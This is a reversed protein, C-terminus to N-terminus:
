GMLGTPGYEYYVTGQRRCTYADLRGLDIRRARIPRAYAGFV